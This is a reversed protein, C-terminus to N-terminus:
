TSHSRAPRRYFVHNGIQVTRVLGPWDAQVSAAHFAIAGNTIDTLPISGSVIRTALRIAHAWDGPTRAQDLTGNCVFSFQCAYGTGQHVVGCISHPYGARHTRRVVVEAIAKQGAVGEGRAEYYLAEALCTTESALNALAVEIRLRALVPQPRPAPMIEPIEQVIVPPEIIAAREIAVVVKPQTPANRISGPNYAAVAAITSLSLFLAGALSCDARRLADSIRKQTM